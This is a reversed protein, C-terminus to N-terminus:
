LVGNSPVDVGVRKVMGGREFVVSQGIGYYLYEEKTSCPVRTKRTGGAEWFQGEIPGNQYIGIADGKIFEM